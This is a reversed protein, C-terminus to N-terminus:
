STVLIAFSHSTEVVQLLDRRGYQSLPVCFQELVLASILTHSWDLNKVEM